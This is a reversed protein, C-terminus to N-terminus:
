SMNAAGEDRSVGEVGDEVVEDEARVALMCSTYHGRQVELCENGALIDVVTGSAISAVFGTSSVRTEVPLCRSFRFTNLLGRVFKCM